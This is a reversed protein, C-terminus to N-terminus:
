LYVRLELSFLDLVLLLLSNLSFHAPTSVRETAAQPIPPPTQPWPDVLSNAATGTLRVLSGRDM